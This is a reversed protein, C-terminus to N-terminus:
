DLSALGDLMERLYKEVETEEEQMIKIKEKSVVCVMVPTYTHFDIIEEHLAIYDNITPYVVAHRLFYKIFKSLTNFNSLSALDEGRKRINEAEKGKGLSVSLRVFGDEGRLSDGKERAIRPM